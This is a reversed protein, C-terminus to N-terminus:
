EVWQDLSAGAFAPLLSSSSREELFAWSGKPIEPGACTYTARCHPLRLVPCQASTMVGTQGPALNVAILGQTTCHSALTYAM